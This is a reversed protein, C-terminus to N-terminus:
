YDYLSYEEIRDITKSPKTDNYLSFFREVLTKLKNTKIHMGSFSLIPLRPKFHQGSKLTKINKCISKISKECFFYVKGPNKIKVRAKNLHLKCM